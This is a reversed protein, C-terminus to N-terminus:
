NQTKCDTGSVYREPTNNRVMLSAYCRKGILDNRDLSFFPPNSPSVSSLFVHQMDHSTPFNSNLSALDHVISLCHFHSIPSMSQSLITM